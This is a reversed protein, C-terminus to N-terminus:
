EGISVNLAQFQSPHRTEFTRHSTVCDCDFCLREQPIEGLCPANADKTSLLPDAIPWDIQLEPDNWLISGEDKASYFQTCKYTVLAYDSMVCFGHAFGPPVYFQRKNEDSLWVGVWQGFTPSPHRIDVAVDYVEGVLVSVLKGQARPNQFHLGRLTGKRSMSINDQVFDVDIGHDSYRRRNWMEAFYGRSDAFIDPEIIVVSPISTKVLQM